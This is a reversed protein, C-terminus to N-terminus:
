LRGAEKLALYTDAVKAPLDDPPATVVVAGLRSLHDSLAREDLLARHAAAAEYAGQSTGDTQTMNVIVPDTAVAVIITHRHLLSIAELLGGPVTGSDLATTIVVLSKANVTKRINGAVDAWDTQALSPQVDALAAAVTHITSRRAPDVRAKLTDDHVLVHLLDGSKEALAALLLTTEISSDIRPEEGIRISSSRGCDLVSVIRRDREPRWTKVLTQGRRATSRWDISRVDDGRVYERLSDFETGEGSVLLLSKGEMEKLRAIRSPLFRRAKFAPMVTLKASDERNRQRGALGLPGATRVTIPGSEIKGRRSPSIITSQITRRGPGLNFPILSPAATVSPPWGNRVSGRARRSSNNRIEVDTSQVTGLRLPVDLRTVAINQPNTALLWDAGCLAVVVLLVVVPWVWSGGLLGAPIALLVLLASRLTAFM